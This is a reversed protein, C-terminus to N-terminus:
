KAEVLKKALRECRWATLTVQNVVRNKEHVNVFQIIRGGNETAVVVLQYGTEDAWIADLVEEATKDQAM